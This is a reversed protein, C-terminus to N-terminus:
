AYTVERTLYEEPVYLVEYPSFITHGIVFEWFNMKDRLGSRWVPLLSLALLGVCAAGKSKEVEIGM